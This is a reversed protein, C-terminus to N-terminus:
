DSLRIRSKTIGHVAARWAEFKTTTKNHISVDVSFIVLYSFNELHMKNM